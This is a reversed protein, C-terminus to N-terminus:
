VVSVVKMDGFVGFSSRIRRLLGGQRSDLSLLGVRTGILDLKDESVHGCTNYTLIRYVM